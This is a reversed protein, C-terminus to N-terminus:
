VPSAARRIEALRAAFEDDDIVPRLGATSLPEPLEVWSHCGALEPWVPIEVAM